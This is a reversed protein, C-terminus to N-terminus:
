YTRETLLPINIKGYELYKTRAEDILKRQTDDWGHYGERGWLRFKMTPNTADDVDLADIKEELATLDNQCHLLIRISLRGFRRFNTFVDDSNMFAALQPWGIPFKDV